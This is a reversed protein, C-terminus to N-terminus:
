LGLSHEIAKAAVSAGIKEAFEALKESVSRLTGFAQDM